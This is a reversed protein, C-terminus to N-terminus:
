SKFSIERDMERIHDSIIIRLNEGEIRDVQQVIEPALTDTDVLDKLKGILTRVDSM